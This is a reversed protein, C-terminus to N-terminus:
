RTTSGTQEVANGTLSSQVTLGCSQLTNKALSHGYQHYQDTTGSPGYQGQAGYGPGIQQYSGPGGPSQHPSMPPGPQQPPAYPPGPGGRQASSSFGLCVCVSFLLSSVFTLTVGSLVHQLGHCSNPINECACLCVYREGSVPPVSQPHFSPGRRIFKPDTSGNTCRCFVNLLNLCM